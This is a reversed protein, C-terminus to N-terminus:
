QLLFVFLAIAASTIIFAFLLALAQHKNDGEFPYFIAALNGSVWWVPAVFIYYFLRVSLLILEM